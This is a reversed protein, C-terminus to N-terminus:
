RATAFILHRLRRSGHAAEKEVEMGVKRAVGQSPVNDPLIIAILRELGLPGFARDRCALAAETALGRRWLSRHVHWGMEVEDIDDVNQATLGCDGVLRGDAKLVMGWLGFGLEAYRQRNREIWAATEKQSFPHDYFRMTEPDGLVEHLADLDDPVLERLLLRDTELLGAPDAV